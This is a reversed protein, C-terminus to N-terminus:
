ATSTRNTRRVAANRSDFNPQIHEQAPAALFGPIKIVITFPANMIGTMSDACFHAVNTVNSSFATAIPSQKGVASQKCCFRDNTGAQKHVIWSQDNSSTWLRFLFFRQNTFALYAAKAPSIRSRPSPTLTCLSTVTCSQQEEKEKETAWRKSQKCDAQKTSTPYFM